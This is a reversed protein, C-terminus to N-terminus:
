LALPDCTQFLVVFVTKDLSTLTNLLITKDVPQCEIEGRLKVRGRQSQQVNTKHKDNESHKTKKECKM